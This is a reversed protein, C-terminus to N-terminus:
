GKGGLASKYKLYFKLVEDVRGGTDAANAPLFPRKKMKEKLEPDAMSKLMAQELIKVRDAPVGPPGGVLRELGMGELEPFGLERVTPVGPYSSKSEFTALLRVDGAQHYKRITTVLTYTADGDGRVAALIFQKSGKYGTLMKHPIKMVTSAVVSATYGTSGQGTTTIKLPRGLKKVDDFSKIGSKAGVGLAYTGRALRAMWSVKSLDYNVKEGLIPPIAMGPINFIAITHGDAKARFLQAIGKRGGAGSVNKPLVNVKKPLYKEMYPAIARVTRDFGGGPSYPIIFTIDKDPFAHSTGPTGLSIALGALAAFAIRYM